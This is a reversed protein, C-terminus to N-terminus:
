DFSQLRVEAPIGRRLTHLWAEGHRAVGPRAWGRRAVGCVEAGRSIGHTQWAEGLWAKGHRALGSGALGRWVEAGRPICHTYGQRAQGRRAQGRRALGRLTFLKL